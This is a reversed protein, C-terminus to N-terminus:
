RGGAKLHGRLKEQWNGAVFELNQCNFGASVGCDRGSLEGGGNFLVVDGPSTPVGVGADGSVMRFSLSPDQSTIYHATM